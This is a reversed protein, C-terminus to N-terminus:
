ESFVNQQPFWKSIFVNEPKGPLMEQEFKWLITYPLEAFADMLVSLREQPLLKSKVNSGLSFYIFGNTAGDM